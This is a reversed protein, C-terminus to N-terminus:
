KQCVLTFETVNVDFYSAKDTLQPGYFRQEAFFVSNETPSKLNRKDSM